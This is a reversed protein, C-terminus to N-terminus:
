LRIFHVPVSDFSCHLQNLKTCFRNQCKFCIMPLDIWEFLIYIPYFLKSCTCLFLESSLIDEVLAFFFRWLVTSFTLLRGNRFVQKCKCWVYRSFVASDQSTGPHGSENEDNRCESHRLPIEVENYHRCCFMNEYNSYCFIILFCYYV